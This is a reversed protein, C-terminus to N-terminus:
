FAAVYAGSPPALLGVKHVTGAQQAEVVLPAGLLSGVVAAMFRRRGLPHHLSESGIPDTM